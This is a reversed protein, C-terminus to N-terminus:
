LLYVEIMREIMRTRVPRSSTEHTLILDTGPFLGATEYRIIRELARDMYEPDDMMGLHEWYMTKRKKVNLVTFDPHIRGLGNLILPKEYYFPIDKKELMDAIILETKSRVRIGSGTYYEPEDEAFPKREYAQSQWEKIFCEDDAIVPMVLQKRGDILSHWIREEPGYFFHGRDTQYMEQLELLIAREKYLSERIRDEYEKQIMMGALERESKKLYRGDPCNDPTVLYYRYRGKDKSVRIHGEFSRVPKKHNRRSLSRNEHNRHSLSQNEYNAQSLFRDEAKKVSKKELYEIEKDIEQIRRTVEESVASM